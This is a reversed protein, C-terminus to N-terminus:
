HVAKNFGVVNKCSLWGKFQTIQSYFDSKLPDDIYILTKFHTWSLQRRLASVITHDPFTEAFSLSSYASLTPIRFVTERPGFPPGKRVFRPNVLQFVTTKM